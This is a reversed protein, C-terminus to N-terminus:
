EIFMCDGYSYFRYKDKVAEEYAAMVNETGGFACVLMLLTSRPLHFNTLLADVAQFSYGPSIFLGTSGEGTEPKEGSWASELARVVTTGVAIVRGRMSRTQMVATVTEDPVEYFEVEMIHRSIDQVRVPQFTGPGVHLTIRAIGAGTSRIAQIMSTDFHLGATPAAVAGLQNAYVTQYRVKDEDGPGSVDRRIYPPLPIQGYRGIAEEVSVTGGSVTFQEGDRHLILTDTVELGDGHLLVTEGDQMRRGPRVLCTARGETGPYQTLMLEVSGGSVRRALIRAPFVKTDNIVLLDGPRILGVLDAFERHTVDGTDRDLHLLRSGARRAAPHQAILEEPLIYDFTSINLDM